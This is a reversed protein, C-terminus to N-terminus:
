GDMWCRSGGLWWRGVSSVLFERHVLGGVNRRLHKEKKRRGRKKFFIHQIPYNSTNGAGEKKRRSKGERVRYVATDCCGDSVRM